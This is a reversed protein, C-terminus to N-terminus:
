GGPDGSPDPDASAAADYASAEPQGAQLAAFAAAGKAKEQETGAAFDALVKSATREDLGKLLTVVSLDPLTMLYEVSKKSGMGKLLGRTQETAESTLEDRAKALGAAFAARDAALQRRDAAVADAEAAVARAAARLQETRDALQLAATARRELVEEYTPMRTGIGAPEENAAEEDSEQIAVETGPVGDLAAVIEDWSDATLRGHWALVALAIAQTAVTAVCITGILTSLTRGM